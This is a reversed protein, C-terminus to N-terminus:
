RPEADNISPLQAVVRPGERDMRADVAPGPVITYAPTTPAPLTISLSNLMIVVAAMGPRLMPDEQVCLLGVHVCRLVEQPQKGGAPCGDLLEQVSGRSWRRWVFTLLDESPRSAPTFVNRRGTVIELVLVGYSFVDSKVSFIGHLAYEPAM